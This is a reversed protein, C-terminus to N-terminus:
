TGQLVGTLMHLGPAYLLLAFLKKLSAVPLAHALRAGLPATLLSGATIGAMAPLHVYGLTHPPLGPVGWGAIAYGLTGALAIPLGVAASTGVAQRMGRNCAVLLPVTLTGGGIGVLSSMGGILAGIGTLAPRGPLARGVPPSLDLLLQTGAYAVFGVFALKLAETPLLSALLSGLLTGLAVGPALRRFVPWEVSGHGHHAAASAIGSFIICALSTALAVHMLHQPPLSQGALLYLLAPVIVLGGGIGLLGAFIGACAGLFLFPALAPLTEAM